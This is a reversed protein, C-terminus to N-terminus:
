YIMRSKEIPTKKEVNKIQRKEVKIKKPPIKMFEKLYLNKQICFSTSFSTIKTRKEVNEM